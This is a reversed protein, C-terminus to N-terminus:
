MTSPEAKNKSSPHDSTSCEDLSSHERTVGLESIDIPPAEELMLSRMVVATASSLQLGSRAHGAAIWANELEPLRGLYPLGDATAPRLGSWCTALPLQAFPRGFKEAFHLLEATGAVTNQKVFGADEMTSGVLIRGDDRPALYRLGVYINRRILGPSGELLAIQGRIPRIPLSLGLSQVLEGTWCGATLCFKDAVIPGEATMAVAVREGSIQFQCVATAPRLDVKALRCAAVLARLHRPNRIQSEGPVAFATTFQDAHDALAPELEGLQLTDLEQCDVGLAKWREAQKRLLIEEDATNALRLSGCIRYGTDIGTKEQLSDSWPQHLQQSLGALQEMTTARHWHEKTPGPPVMGAGAWSAERGFEGRDVICVKTGSQALEWAMSLGVVGGGVILVDFHKTPSFPM